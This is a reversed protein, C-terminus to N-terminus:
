HFHTNRILSGGFTLWPLRWFSRITRSKRWFHAASTELVLTKRSVEKLLSGRFDGSRANQVLSGEFTLRALRSLSVCLSLSLALANRVLSRELPLRPLRWFSRITRSKRLFHAASTELVLTKHWVEKLLSGRFDGSRASQALRREFTRRRPLRWFSRKQALSGEFTLRPLRWFSRKTGRM